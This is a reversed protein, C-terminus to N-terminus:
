RPRLQPRPALRPRLRLRPMLPPPVNRLSGGCVPCSDSEIASARLWHGRAECQANTCQVTSGPLFTMDIEELNRRLGHKRRSCEDPAFWVKMPNDHWLFTTDIAIRAAFRIKELFQPFVYSRM